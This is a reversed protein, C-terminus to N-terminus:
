LLLIDFIQVLGSNIGFKLFKVRIKHTNEHFELIEFILQNNMHNIPHFFSNLTSYLTPSTSLLIIILCFHSRHPTLKPVSLLFVLCRNQPFQLFFNSKYLHYEHM